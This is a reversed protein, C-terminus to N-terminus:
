GFVASAAFFAQVACTPDLVALDAGGNGCASGYGVLLVPSAPSASRLVFRLLKRANVNQMINPVAAKGCM